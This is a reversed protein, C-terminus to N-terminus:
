IELDLIKNKLWDIDAIQSDAAISDKVKQLSYNSGSKIKTLRRTQTVMNSYIKRQYESILKSRRLYVRFTNILSFLPEFEEMEYYIKLLLSKSDLHYYVDTFEITTLLKLAKRFENKSFYLRALNYNVSNKRFDKNLHLSYKEIFNETWNFENLRLAIAVINKFHSHGLEKNEFIIEKELMRKYIEFLEKLYKTKGTNIKRICYNQVFSYIDRQENVSFKEDHLQLYKKLDSFYNEAEPELITKLILFYVRVIPINEHPNKKLYSLLFELIPINYQVQLINQRNLIECCYKLKHSLYYMDLNDSLSQLSTDAARNDKVATFEYSLEDYGLQRKYYKLDRQSHSEQIQNGLSLHQKFYKDHNKEKLKQLLFKKQYFAKERFVEYALFGELLLTLDTMVYRLKQHNFKENEFLKSFINEFTIQKEEFVPYEKVLIELLQSVKENVNFFPSAVYKQFSKLEWPSLTKLLHILKM